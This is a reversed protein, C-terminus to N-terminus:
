QEVPSAKARISDIRISEGQKPVIQVSCVQKPQMKGCVAQVGSVISLGGTKGVRSFNVTIESLVMRTTNRIQYNGQNDASALSLQVIQPTKTVATRDSPPKTETNKKEVATGQISIINIQSDKTWGDLKFKCVEQPKLTGCVKKKLNNQRNSTATKGLTQYIVEINKVSQDAPNQIEYTGQNDTWRVGFNVVSQSLAPLPILSVSAITFISFFKPKMIKVCKKSLHCIGICCSVLILYIAYGDM